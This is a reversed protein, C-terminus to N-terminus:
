SGLTRAVRVGIWDHQHNPEHSGRHASRVAEATNTCFCGGRIVRFGCNGGARASGDGPTGSLNPSWCEQVWEYVNGHVNYLGWPNAAFSDVPVTKPQGLSTPTRYNARGAPGASGWWFPTATGARAAYEWEAESLLRYRGGTMRSLWPLYEGTVDDWSINIVPRNGRGWGEDRPRYRCSGAAVCADWEAFSLEFRGVAFPRAITVKQLPGEKDSGGSEGRPSGMLFSGAPIVVMEPCLGCERFSNGPRLTREEAANLPVARRSPNFADAGPDPRLVPAPAVPPLPKPAPPVALALKRLEDIRAEALRDYFANSPGYHRRFAELVAISTSDKAAAWAREVDGAQLLPPGAPTAPAQPVPPTAPASVSASGPRLYIEEGGLRGYLYPEQARNTAALVDDSVYGFLRRVDLGPTAVRKLLSDTFPSHRSRGDDATTGDKAAYAVLTNGEPEIRALGRSVSRKAGAVAFPNNRCADLIVLKLRKVGDLQGLVTDLAIAELEIDRAAALTADIPILYNRGAVEMGHGAFYIVGFEAGVAERAMERLAARFSDHGLNRQLIVKDFKLQRELADAFAAADNVPNALPGIRYEANGIVLAVRRAEAPAASAHLGILACCLGAVTRFFSQM